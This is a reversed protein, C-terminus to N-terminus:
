VQKALTKYSLGLVVGFAIHSVISFTQRAM